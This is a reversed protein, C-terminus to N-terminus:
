GHLGELLKTAYQAVHAARGAEDPADKAFPNFRVIQGYDVGERMLAWLVRVHPFPMEKDWPVGSEGIFLTGYKTDVKATPKIGIGACYTKFKDETM